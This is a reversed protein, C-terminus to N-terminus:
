KLDNEMRRRLGERARAIRSKVTGISCRLTKSIQQYSMQDAFRMVLVERYKRPLKQVNALLREAFEEKLAITDASDTAARLERRLEGDSGDVPEDLSLHKGMGHRKGHRLYNRSLNVVIRYMWTTFESDGRFRGIARHVRVFTDQAVECADEYNRLLGYAINFAHQHHRQVLAELARRDGRQCLAILERDDLAEMPVGTKVGKAAIPEMFM